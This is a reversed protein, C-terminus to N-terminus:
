YWIVLRTFVYVSSTNHPTLTGPALEKRYHGSIAPLLAAHIIYKCVLREHPVYIYM